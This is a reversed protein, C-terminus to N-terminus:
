ARAFLVAPARVAPRRAEEVTVPLRRVRRVRRLAERSLYIRAHGVGGDWPGAGIRRGATDRVVFRAGFDAESRVPTTAISGLVRIERRFAVRAGFAAWECDDGLAVRRQATAVDRGAGCRVRMTGRPPLAVTIRDDGDGGDALAGNVDLIDDGPGGFHLSDAEGGELRDNGEGGDLTHTGEGASLSDDGGRGAIRGGGDGGSIANAGADGALNDLGSGGRLSEIATFTDGAAAAGARGTALDVDVPSPGRDYRLTDVGSGGDARDPLAVGDEDLLDILDVGEGAEVVDTGSGAVLDDGAEGGRLTDDGPGGILTDPFPGGDLVDDGEEGRAVIARRYSTSPSAPDPAVRDDGDGTMVDGVEAGCVVEHDDISQCNGTATLVAGRDRFRIGTEGLGVLVDNAEGPAAVFHAQTFCPYQPFEKGSQECRTETTVTAAHAAGPSAALLLAAAVPIPLRM